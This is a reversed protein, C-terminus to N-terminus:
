GTNFFISSARNSDCHCPSTGTDIFTGTEGDYYPDLSGGSGDNKHLAHGSCNDGGYFQVHRGNNMHNYFSNARDEASSPINQCTGPPQAHASYLLTGSGSNIDWICVHGIWCQSWSANAAKVFILQFTTLLAVFTVIFVLVWRVTPNLKQL